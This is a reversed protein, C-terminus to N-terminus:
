KGRTKREKKKKKGIINIASVTYSVDLTEEIEFKEKKAIKM